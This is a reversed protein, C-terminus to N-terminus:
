SMKLCYLRAGHTSNGTLFCSLLYTIFHISYQAVFKFADKFAAVLVMLSALGLAQQICQGESYLMYTFVRLYSGLM